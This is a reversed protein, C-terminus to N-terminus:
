DTFFRLLADRRRLSRVVLGVAWIPCHSRPAFFLVDNQILPIIHRGREVVEILEEAQMIIPVIIPVIIPAIVAIVPVIVTRGATLVDDVIAVVVIVIGVSGRSGTVLLQINVQYIFQTVGKYKLM